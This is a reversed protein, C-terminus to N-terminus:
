GSAGGSVILIIPAQIPNKNKIKISIVEGGQANTRSFNTSRPPKGSGSAIIDKFISKFIAKGSADYDNAETGNVEAKSGTLSDKYELYTYRFNTEAMRIEKYDKIYDDRVLFAQKLGNGDEFLSLESKEDSSLSDYGGAFILEAINENAGVLASNVQNFYVMHGGGRSIKDKEISKLEAELDNRLKDYKEKDSDAM